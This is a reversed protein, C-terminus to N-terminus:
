LQKKKIGLPEELSINPSTALASNIKLSEFNSSHIANFMTLPPKQALNVYLAERHM